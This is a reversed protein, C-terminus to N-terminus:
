PNSKLTLDGAATILNSLGMLDVLDPNSSVTLDGVQRLGTLGQINTMITNGDVEVSGASAVKLLGDLNLLATNGTIVLAGDIRTLAVLPELNYISPSEVVKLDGTIRDCGTAGLADVDERSVLNYTEDACNAASVSQSLVSLCWILIAHVVPNM